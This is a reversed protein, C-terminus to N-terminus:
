LDRANQRASPNAPRATQATTDGNEFRTRLEHDTLTSLSRVQAFVRPWRIRRNAALRDRVSVVVLTGLRSLRGQSAPEMRRREEILGLERLRTLPRAIHRPDHGPAKLRVDSSFYPPANLLLAREFSGLRVGALAALNLETASEAGSATRVDAGPSRHDPDVRTAGRQRHLLWAVKAARSM